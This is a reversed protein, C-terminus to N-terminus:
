SGVSRSTGIRAAPSGAPLGRGGGSLRAAAPAVVGGPPPRSGKLGHPAPLPKRPNVIDSMTDWGGTGFGVQGFVERHHFSRKLFAEATAVFGYFTREDLAPVLANWIEKIRGM